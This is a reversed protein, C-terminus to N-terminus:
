PRARAGPRDGDMSSVFTPKFVPRPPERLLRAARAEAPAAHVAASRMPLKAAVEEAEGASALVPGLLAIELAPTSSATASAPDIAGREPGVQAAVPAEPPGPLQAGPEHAATVTTPPPVKGAPPSRGSQVVAVTSIVGAALAAFAVGGFWPRRAFRGASLLNGVSRVKEGPHIVVSPPHQWAWEMPSEAISAHLRAFRPRRAHARGGGVDNGLPSTAAGPQSREHQLSRDPEPQPGTQAANATAVPANPRMALAGSSQTGLAPSISRDSGVPRRFPM